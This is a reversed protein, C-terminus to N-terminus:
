ERKKPEKHENIYPLALVIALLSIPWIAAWFARQILSVSMPKDTSNTVKGTRNFEASDCAEKKFWYVMDGAFVVALGIVIWWFLVNVIEM